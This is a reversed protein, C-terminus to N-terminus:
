SATGCFRQNRTEPDLLTLIFFETSKDLFTLCRLRLVVVPELGRASAVHTRNSSGVVIRREPHRLRLRWILGVRVSVSRVSVLSLSPNARM